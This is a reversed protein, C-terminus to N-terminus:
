ESNRLKKIGKQCLAALAFLGGGILVALILQPVGAMAITGIHFPAEMIGILNLISAGILAVAAVLIMAASLGLVIIGVMKLFGRLATKAINM